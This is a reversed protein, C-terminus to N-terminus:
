EVTKRASELTTADIPIMCSALFPPPNQQSSLHDSKEPM